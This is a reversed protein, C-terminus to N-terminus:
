ETTQIQANIATENKRQPTCEKWAATSRMEGCTNEYKRCLPWPHLRPSFDHLEALSVAHDECHMMTRHLASAPSIPHVHAVADTTKAGSAPVSHSNNKMVGRSRNGVPIFSRKASTVGGSWIWFSASPATRSRLNATLLASGMTWVTQRIASTEGNRWMIVGPPYRM